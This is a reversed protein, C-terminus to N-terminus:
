GQNGFLYILGIGPLLSPVLIPVMAITKFLGKAPMCSRTLAYAFLFALTVTIVTTIGAILLSNGISQRLTPTSFYELYNRISTKAAPCILVRRLNDIPVEITQGPATLAGEFLLLGGTASQDQFRLLTVGDLAGEPALRTAPLRTRATPTRGGNVPKALRDAWDQVTGVPRWEGDTAVEIAIRDLRFQYAEFSKSLMAYLPFALAILLYLGIVGMFARMAWDDRGLKPRIRPAALQRRAISAM